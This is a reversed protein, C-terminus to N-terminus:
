KKIGPTSSNNWNKALAIAKEFSESFLLGSILEFIAYPPRKEDHIDKLFELLIKSQDKDLQPFQYDESSFVSHELCSLPIEYLYMSRAYEGLKEVLEIYKIDEKVFCRLGHFIDGSIGYAYRLAKSKECKTVYNHREIEEENVNILLTSYYKISKRHVNLSDLFIIFLLVFAICIIILATTM